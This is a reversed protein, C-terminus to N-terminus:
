QFILRLLVQEDSTGPLLAPGVGLIGIRNKSIGQDELLDAVTQAYQESRSVVENLEEQAVASSSISVALIFPLRKDKLENKLRLLADSGPVASKELPWGTVDVYEGPADGKRASSSVFQELLLYVRGNGRRIAYVAMYVGQNEPHEVIQYFQANDPGYLQAIGFVKNAWYNSSGCRREECLFLSEFGQDQMQKQYYRFADRNSHGEPIRYLIRTMQGNARFESDARVVGNIKKISGTVLQHNNVLEDRFNMIYANPYREINPLDASGAVDAGIVSAAYFFGLFVVLQNLRM